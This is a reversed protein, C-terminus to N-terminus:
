PMGQQITARYEEIRGNAKALEDSLRATDKQAATLQANAVDMLSRYSGVLHEAASLKGNLTAVEAEAREARDKYDHREKWWSEEDRRANKERELDATLTAVEARSQQLERQLSAALTAAELVRTNAADAETFFRRSQEIEEALKAKVQELETRLANREKRHRALAYAFGNDFSARHDDWAGGRGTMTDAFIDHPVMKAAAYDEPGPTESSNPQANHTASM